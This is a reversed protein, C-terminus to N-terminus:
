KEMYFVFLENALKFRDKNSLKYREEPVLERSNLYTKNLSSKDTLYYANDYFVIVAHFRGIAGNGTIACDCRTNSRGLKFEPSSVPIREGTKVRVIWAAGPTFGADSPSPAERQSAPEATVGKAGGGSVFWKDGFTDRRKENESFLGDTDKSYDEPESVRIDPNPAGLCRKLYESSYLKEFFEADSSLAYKLVCQATSLQMEMGPSLEVKETIVSIFPKKKLLAFNIERRCNHSNLSNESVFAVCVTCRNLHEAIIEPWEEGPDIGEDYWVRYGDRALREAVPFVIAKDKHCYSIFIYEEAGEYPAAGCRRM